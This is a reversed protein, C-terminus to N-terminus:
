KSAVVCLTNEKNNFYECKWGFYECIDEQFQSNYLTISTRESFVFDLISEVNSKMLDCNIGKTDLYSYLNRSLKRRRLETAVIDSPENPGFQELNFHIKSLINENIHRLINKTADVTSISIETVRHNNYSSSTRMKCGSQSIKFKWFEEYDNWERWQKVIEWNSKNVSFTIDDYKYVFDKLHYASDM